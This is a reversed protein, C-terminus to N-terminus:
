PKIRMLQRKLKPIDNKVTKWVADTDVGFYGHILKDRMGAMDRWPIDHHQTRTKASVNKSAEGIVEIQRIVGDQILKKGDFAGKGVGETYEEIQSIAQLIHALFVKDNKM